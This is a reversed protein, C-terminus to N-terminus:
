WTISLESLEFFCEDNVLATRVCHCFYKIMTLIDLRAPM